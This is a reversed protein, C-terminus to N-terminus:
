IHILSLPLEHGSPPEADSEVLSSLIAADNDALDGAITPRGTDATSPEPSPNSM